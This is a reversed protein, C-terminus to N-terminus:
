KSGSSPRAESVLKNIFDNVKKIVIDLQYIIEENAFRIFQIGQAELNRQREIDEKM